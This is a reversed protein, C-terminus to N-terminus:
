LMNLIEQARDAIANFFAGERQIKSFDQGIVERKNVRDTLQSALIVTKVKAKTVQDLDPIQLQNLRDIRQQRYEQKDIREEINLRTAAASVEDLYSLTFVLDVLESTIPKPSTVMLNVCFESDDVIYKLWHQGTEPDM